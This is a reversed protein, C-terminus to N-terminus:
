PKQQPNTELFSELDGQAYRFQMDAELLDYLAQIETQKASDLERRANKVDLATGQGVEYAKEAVLLSARNSAEQIQALAMQAKAEEMKQWAQTVDLAVGANADERLAQLRKLENEAQERDAKRQGGDLLQWHVELTAAAYHQPLLATPTQQALETHLSVTPQSELRALTLGAKAAEIQLDLILLEPRHTQAFLLASDPSPPPNPPTEPSVIQINAALPRGLLRNLNMKALNLAGQAKTLGVQAEAMQAQALERDIPKGFGAEIQKEVLERYQTAFDASEQAAQLGAQARLLDVCAKAVALALDAQAKRYNQQALASEARYRIIAAGRGARYLPQELDIRIQAFQEPLTPPAKIVPLKALPGQETGAVTARLSPQATPRDRNANAEAAARDYRAAVAQPSQQLALTVAQQITLTYPFSPAAASAVPLAFSAGWYLIFPLALNNKSCFFPPVLWRHIM